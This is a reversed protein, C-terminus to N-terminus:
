VVLSSCSGWNKLPLLSPLLSVIPTTEEGSKWGAKCRHHLIHDSWWWWGWVCVLLFTLGWHLPPNVSFKFDGRKALNTLSSSISRWYMYSCHHMMIHITAYGPNRFLATCRCNYTNTYFFDNWDGDSQVKKTWEWMRMSGGWFVRSLPKACIESCHDPVRTGRGHSRWHIWLVFLYSLFAKQLNHCQHLLILPQNFGIDSILIWALRDCKSPGYGM